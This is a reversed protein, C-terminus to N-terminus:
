YVHPYLIRALAPDSFFSSSFLSEFFFFSFQEETQRQLREVDEEKQRQQARKKAYEIEEAERRKAFIQEEERRREELRLAYDKEEKQRKERRQIEKINMDFLCPWFLM